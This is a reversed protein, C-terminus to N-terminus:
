DIYGGGFLGSPSPRLYPEDSFVEGFTNYESAMNMLAVRDSAREPAYYFDRRGNAPWTCQHRRRAYYCVGGPEDIDCEGRNQWSPDYQCGFHAEFHPNEKARIRFPRDKDTRSM